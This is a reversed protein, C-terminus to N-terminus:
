DKFLKKKLKLLFFFGFVWLSIGSSIVPFILPYKTFLTEVNELPVDGVIFTKTFLKSQTKIEGLPNIICSIGGNAAHVVTRRNEIARLISIDEHQYPGSSKGWWSDNTVVTIIEAGRQVFNAVFYPFISEYCVLGNIHISDKSFIKQSASDSIKAPLSFNTTDKGVNWGSIGVGWKILDGLFPIKDVFPTREAFPVLKMKGYRQVSWSDPSFLLIGNYTTYYYDGRKNEIADSPKEEGKFYYIFDPMGTLLYVNNKQIFRYITNVIQGHSGDMLFVPLATEPWIILKAGKNVAKQSLDLYFNTLSDLNTNWKDWPNLNPQILGVKIKANTVKFTKLRYLGYSIVIVFIVLSTVFNFTFKKTSSKINVISRYLFINIYILIISLGVAGVIDAAQIFVTFKALGNGLTLWPFSLDTIMYLYEYAAWFFPFLFIVNRKPFIKRAFYLLTSPILFFLPNVFLLLAGSIMLFPDSQKQWSGVWYLTIVSFVFFTLYTLRNIEGLTEKKGIVYFYPILGVFLFITFPFPFPPFGIGILAGSLILLFREKRLSLKEEASLAIKNKFIKLKM